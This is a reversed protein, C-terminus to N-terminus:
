KKKELKVAFAMPFESEFKKPRPSDVGAFCIELAEGDFKYIGPAKVGKANPSSDLVDFDITREPKAGSDLKVTMEYARDGGKLSLRDGKFIWTSEGLMEDKSIWEGQMKKLDGTPEDGRLSAPLVFLVGLILSSAVRFPSKMMMSTM